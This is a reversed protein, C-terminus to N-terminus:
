SRALNAPLVLSSAAPMQTFLYFLTIGASANSAVKAGANRTIDNSVKNKGLSADISYITNNKMQWLFANGIAINILVSVQLNHYNNGNLLALLSTSMTKNPQPLTVLQWFINGDFTLIFISGKSKSCNITTHLACYLLDKWASFAKNLLARENQSSLLTLKNFNAARTKRKKSAKFEEIM